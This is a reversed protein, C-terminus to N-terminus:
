SRPRRAFERARPLGALGILFLAALGSVWLGARLWPTQYQFEVRHRGPAIVVGRAAVDVPFIAAVAGDVRATWGPAYQDLVVLGAKASTDVELVLQEPRASLWVVTGSAVPIPAGGEWWTVESASDLSRTAEAVDAVPRTEALFARERCPWRILRLGTDPDEALVRAVLRRSQAETGFCVHFRPLLAPHAIVASRLADMRWPVLPLNVRFSPVGEFSALSPGLSRRTARVWAEGTDLTVGLPVQVSEFNMVRGTGSGDATGRIAEAFANPSQVAEPSVLPLHEGNVFLLEVFIVAGWLSPAWVAKRSAWLVAAGVGLACGAGVAGRSWASTVAAVVEPDASLSASRWGLVAAVRSPSALAAGLGLLAASGVGLRSSFQTAQARLVDVGVAILPVAAVWTVSLYKEPYRFLSLPPVVFSALRWLGGRDGLAMWVSLLVLAILPWLTKARARSGVVLPLLATAGFTLTTSWVATRDDGLWEKVLRFRVSDPLYGGFLFEPIRLPALAWLSGHSSGHGELRRASEGTVGLAPFLEAAALLLALLGGLTILLWSVPRPRAVLAIAFVLAGAFLTGQADGALFVLAWTVALMPVDRGRGRTSLRSAAVGVWPLTAHSLLYVLNNSQGLAYGGFGFAVAGALAAERSVAFCRGLLYAGWLAWGYALLVGLLGAFVPTLPLLVWTLPHFTQTVIQGIFPVGLGEFPFWQPLEGGLLREQVYARLPLNTVLQDRYFPVSGSLLHPAFFCAWAAVLLGSAGRRSLSMPPSPTLTLAHDVM